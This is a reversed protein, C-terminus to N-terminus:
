DNPLVDILIFPFCYEPRSYDKELNRIEEMIGGKEYRGAMVAANFRYTEEDETPFLALYDEKWNDTMLSRRAERFAKALPMGAKMNDFCLTMLISSALSNVDWLTVMMADVGANKLGRQLGFVGDATIKGMGSRCASIVFLSCKGLDMKSLEAGSILGDFREKSNFDYDSLTSNVGALAFINESMDTTYYKEKVDTAPCDDSSFDGHTSLMIIPYEPALRRFEVESADASSLVIDAPNNRSRYVFNTEDIEENLKPFRKSRFHSFAVDDNADTPTNDRNYDYNIRGVMLMPASPAIKAQPEMLRRTSSLRYMEKDKVQPFYEVAIRHVYGDPSFFVRKVDRLEKLLEPTWILNQFEEDNYLDDKNYGEGNLGDDAVYEIEEPSGIPIFKVNGSKKLVLAAMKRKGDKEYDLFEIAADGKKLKKRIDSNTYNLSRVAQQSAPGDGSTRDIQLLLGKSFLAVDYSFAPDKDEMGFCDTMFPRLTQWYLAREESTMSSFNATAAKKQVAFYDKYAKLMGKADADALLRIKAAMRKARAYDLNKDSKDKARKLEEDAMALARDFQGLRALTLAYTLKTILWNNDGPEYIREELWGDVRELAEAAEKYMGIRYYLQAMERDLLVGFRNGKFDVNQHYRMLDKADKYYDLATDFYGSLYFFNGNLKYYSVIYDMCSEDAVEPDTSIILDISNLCDWLEDRRNFEYARNGRSVLSDLIAFTDASAAGPTLMAFLILFLRYGKIRKGSSSGNNGTQQKM